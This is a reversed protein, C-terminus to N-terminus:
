KQAGKLKKYLQSPWVVLYEALRRGVCTLTGSVSTYPMRPSARKISRVTCQISYATYHLTCYVENQLSLVASLPCRRCCWSTIDIISNVSSDADDVYLLSQHPLCCTLLEPLRHFLPTHRYYVILSFTIIIVPMLLTLPIIILLLLLLLLLLVSVIFDRIIHASCTARM